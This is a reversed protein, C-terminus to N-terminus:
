FANEKTTLATALDGLFLVHKPGSTGNDSQYFKDHSWDLGSGHQSSQRDSFGYTPGIKVSSM